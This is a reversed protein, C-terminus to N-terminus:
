AARSSTFRRLMWQALLTAVMTSIALAILATYGFNTLAKLIENRVFLTSV